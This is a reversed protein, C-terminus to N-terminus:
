RGFKSFEDFGGNFVNMDVYERAIGPLVTRNSYQWFTWARGDSLSPERFINRIWIPNDAFESQGNLFVDYMKEGCYIIPTVGYHGKLLQTMEYLSGRAKNVDPLNGDHYGGYFEFDIVPPLSMSGKPVVSIFNAFQTDAESDFSFFHYAGARLGAKEAGELNPVFYDDSHGSGETAKIFAFSIGQKSLTAWDIDGQYSSVDVGRAPFRLVSPSQLSIVGFYVFVVGAVLVLSTVFLIGSLILKKM